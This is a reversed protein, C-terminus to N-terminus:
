KENEFVNKMTKKFKKLNSFKLAIFLNERDINKVCSHQSFNLKSDVFSKSKNKFQKNKEFTNQSNFIKTNENQYQELMNESAYFVQFMFRFKTNKFFNSLTSKKATQFVNM